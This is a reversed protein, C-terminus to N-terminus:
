WQLQVGSYVRHDPRNEAAGAVAGNFAM